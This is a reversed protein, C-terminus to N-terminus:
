GIGRCFLVTMEKADKFRVIDSMNEIRHCNHFGFGDFIERLRDEGGHVFILLVYVAGHCLSNVFAPMGAQFFFDEYTIALLKNEPTAMSVGLAMNISSAPGLKDRVVTFGLITEDPKPGKRFAGAFGKKVSSRDEIQLEIAPYTESIFAMEMADVFDKVLRRPLPYVTAIKLISIDDDYFQTFSIQDTILGTGSKVVKVNGAYGEFESRICEIKEALRERGIFSGWNGRMAEGCGVGWVGCGVGKEERGVGEDDFAKAQIVVPIRHKESIYFGFELAKGFEDGDGSVILPLETFSGLPTVEEDNEQLAIILYGVATECLAAKALPDLAEYLGESSTLCVTRKGTLGGALASEFAVKENICEQYFFSASTAASAEKVLAKSTTYLFETGCSLLNNVIAKYM